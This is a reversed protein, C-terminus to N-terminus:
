RLRLALFLTRLDLRERIAKWIAEGFAAANMVIMTASFLWLGLGIAIGLHLLEALLVILARFRTWVLIPYLLQVAVSSLAAAQLVLPYALMPAPDFQQFQPLSLARWIADGTWWQEGAAKSIGAAAYVICLHLRLVLVSFSADSPAASPARRFLADLSWERGVPLVMCYFLAIVLLKGIGYTFLMSSGMLALHTIWALFAVIRTQFGVLLCLASLLHVALVGVVLEVSGVGLPALWSLWHSLKPRLPDVMSDAINWPVPGFENLLIDRYEWLVVGQFLLIASIGIRLVALPKFSAADSLFIARLRDVSLLLGGYM